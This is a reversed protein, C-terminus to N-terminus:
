FDIDTDNQRWTNLYNVWHPATNQTYAWAGGEKLNNLNINNVPNSCWVVFKGLANTFQTSSDTNPVVKIEKIRGSQFEFKIEDYDYSTLGAATYYDSYEAATGVVTNGRVQLRKVELAGNVAKDWLEKARLEAKGERSFFGEEEYRCNDAYFAMVTNVDHNNHAEIYSRVIERLDQALADDNLVPTLLAACAIFATLRTVKCGGHFM